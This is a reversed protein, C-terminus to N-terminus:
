KTRKFERYCIAINKYIDRSLLLNIPEEPLIKKDSESFCKNSFSFTLGNTRYNGFNTDGEYRIRKTKRKLKEVTWGLTELYHLLDKKLVLAVTVSTIDNITKPETDTAEDVWVFLYSDNASKRLFWGPVVKNMKDIFSLELSFTKLPRNIFRAAVKEDCKYQVGNFTFVTDIGFVQTGKETIRKFKTTEQSYFYKELFESVLNAIREDENRHFNIARNKKKNNM